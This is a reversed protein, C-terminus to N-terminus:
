DEIAVCAFVNLALSTEKGSIPRNGHLQTNMSCFCSSNGLGTYLPQNDRCGQSAFVNIFPKFMKSSKLHGLFVTGVILEM